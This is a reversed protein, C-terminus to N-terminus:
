NKERSTEGQRDHTYYLTFPYNGASQMYGAWLSTRLKKGWRQEWLAFPNLLGFSGVEVGVKMNTREGYHFQPEATELNLVNGAAYARASLLPQQDQGQSLSVYAANGTLYRGLDVQGNQSNDVAVGDVTVTSFQSGLGRASVTKMGGVGGYDKLTVGAMQKVADSLQRVGQQELQQADLVQTPAVTRSTVPTRQASVEVEDLRYVTDQAQSPTYPLFSIILLFAWAPPPAVLPPAAAHHSGDVIFSVIRYFVKSM